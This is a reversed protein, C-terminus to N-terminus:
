GAFGHELRALLESAAKIDVDMPRKGDLERVPKTLWKQALSENGFVRIAYDRLTTEAM